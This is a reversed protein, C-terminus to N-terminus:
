ERALAEHIREIWRSDAKTFAQATLGIDEALEAGELRIVGHNGVVVLALEVADVVGGTVSVSAIPGGDFRLLLNLQQGSAHRRVSLSGPESGVLSEATALVAAAATDLATDGDPLQLLARFSVVTGIKGTGVAAALTEQLPAMSSM